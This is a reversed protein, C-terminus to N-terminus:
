PRLEKAAEPTLMGRLMSDCMLRTRKELSRWPIWDDERHTIELSVVGHVGAWIVQALLECDKHEPLFMGKEFAERVTGSLYSYADFEPDGKRALDEADPELGEPKPEMFMLRYHNPHEMAFRVYAHMMRALRHLPHDIRGLRVFAQAFADFDSRCIAKLIEMKDKFHTYIAPATYEISDAIKRLSVGEFGHALFLERAAALIKERM